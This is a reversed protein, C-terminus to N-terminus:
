RAVPGHRIFPFYATIELFKSNGTGLPTVSGDQEQPIYIRLGPGRPQPLRSDSVTFYDRPVQAQSHSRQRPGAAITFSLGMREHSLINCLSYLRLHEASFFISTTPRLPSPAL